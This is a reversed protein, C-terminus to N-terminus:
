HTPLIHGHSNSQSPTLLNLIWFSVLWVLARFGLRDRYLESFTNLLSRLFSWASLSSSSPHITEHHPLGLENELQDISEGPKELNIDDTSIPLYSPNSSSVPHSHHQNTTSPGIMVRQDNTNSSNAIPQNSLHSSPGNPANVNSHNTKPKFCLWTTLCGTSQAVEYSIFIFVITSLIFNILRHGQFPLVKLIGKTDAALWFHFQIIFTELSCQGIFAFLKSNTSRLFETCNRLVVFSAIPIIAIYPHYHNYILKNPRSIEFWFFWILGLCSAWISGKRIRDFQNFYEKEILKHEKFKLYCLSAVMGWYVIFMDLTVRFRWESAKWQTAFVQNILEFLFKLAKESRFFATISVVSFTLKPLLFALKDNWQHGVYMTLWIILFWMSVLPSFYYSLYDTDMVYALVLTLLNLRVLVSLIRAFGFDKKLYYYTFHGYGTMFLYSAVCIRIPNYIGSIKSAALYHYILIAIQMWGKWEDTQERNLLGLDGKESTVSSWVGAVLAILNLLGFQLRDFQKQEKSFMSTRDGLFILIISAGFIALPTLRDKSPFWRSHVALCSNPYHHIYLGLPAWVLLFLLFVVQIWHPDPYKFCCTKDFPFKKLLQDNCRLNFLIRAQIDALKNSYHLGDKTESHALDVMLNLVSPILISSTPSSDLKQLNYSNMEEVQSPLITEKRIQNLKEVAPYEVPLLVIEDSVPGQEYNAKPSSVQFLHDITRKWAQIGVKQRLYWLGSGVVLLAPRNQHVKPAPSPLSSRYNRSSIDSWTTSNLFPDWVFRWEVGGIHLTRDSHKAQGEPTISPDMTRLAGYFLVRTVSDGIFVVSRGSLCETVSKPKYSYLMCGAPQWNGHQAGDLWDGTHLLAKCHYPDSWDKIVLRYSALGLLVAIM